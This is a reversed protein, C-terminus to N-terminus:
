QVTDKDSCDANRKSGSGPSKRSDPVTNEVELAPDPYPDANFCISILLWHQQNMGYKHKCQVFFCGEPFIVIKILTVFAQGSFLSM